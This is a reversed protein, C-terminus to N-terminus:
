KDCETCVATCGSIRDVADSIVGNEPKGIDNQNNVSIYINILFSVHFEHIQMTERKDEVVM